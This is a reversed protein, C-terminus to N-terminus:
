RRPVRQGDPYLVRGSPWGSCITVDDVTRRGWEWGGRDACPQPHPMSVKGDDDVPGAPSAPISPRLFPTLYRGIGESEGKKGKRRQTNPGRERSSYFPPPTGQTPSRGRMIVCGCAWVWVVCLSSLM